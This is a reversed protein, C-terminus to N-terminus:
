SKVTMQAWGTADAGHAATAAIVNTGPRLLLAARFHGFRDASGARRVHMTEM